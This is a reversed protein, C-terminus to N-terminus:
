EVEVQLKQTRGSRKVELTINGGDLLSNYFDNAQEASTIAEGNVGKIIDGTRLGMKAFISGPKVKGIKFGGPDTGENFPQIQMEELLKDIDALASTVEEQELRIPSTEVAAPKSPASRRSRASRQSRAPRRNRASRQSKASRQKRIAQGKAPTSAAKEDYEMTLRLEETGKNIIVNNRVIRKILAQGVQDGEHYAEQKRARQNEIIAVSQGPEDVVVTGVLKLGLNKLAL